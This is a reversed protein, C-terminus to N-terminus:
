DKRLHFREYPREKWKPDYCRMPKNFRADTWYAGKSTGASVGGVHQILGTPTGYRTWERDSWARYLLDAPQTFENKELFTLLSKLCERDYYIGCLGAFPGGASCYYRGRYYSDKGKYHGTSYFTLTNGDQKHKHCRMENIADLAYDWFGDQFVVDDECILFGKQETELAFRLAHAYNRTLKHHPKKCGDNLGKPPKHFKIKDTHRYFWWLYNPDGDGILLDVGALRHSLPDCMFLSSLMQYIYHEGKEVTRGGQIGSRDRRNCTFVLVRIDEPGIIRDEADDRLKDLLPYNGKTVM